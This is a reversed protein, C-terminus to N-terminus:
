RARQRGAELIADRRSDAPTGSGLLGGTGLLHEVQQLLLQDVALLSLACGDVFRNADLKENARTFFLIFKDSPILKRQGDASLAEL